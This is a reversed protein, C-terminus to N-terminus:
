RCSYKKHQCFRNLKKEQVDFYILNNTKHVELEAILLALIAEEDPTEPKSSQMDSATRSNRKASSNTCYLYIIIFIVNIKM